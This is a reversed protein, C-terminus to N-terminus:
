IRVQDRRTGIRVQDRRTGIRVQDRRTGAQETIVATTDVAPAPATSMTLSLILSSLM